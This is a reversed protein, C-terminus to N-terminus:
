PGSWRSNCRSLYYATYQGGYQVATYAAAALLLLATALLGRAAGRTRFFYYPLAVIALAVVMVNLFASRAYGREESDFRYWLFVLAMAILAFAVDVESMVERPAFLQHATGSLFAVVSLLVVLKIKASGM